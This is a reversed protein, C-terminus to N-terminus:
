GIFRAMTTAADLVGHWSMMYGAIHLQGLGREFGTRYLQINTVEFV